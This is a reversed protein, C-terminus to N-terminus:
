ISASVDTAGITHAAVLHVIHPWLPRPLDHGMDGLMELTAGPILEATREGGSPTILTDDLGHIVLTPVDLTRLRDARPPASLIAAYQRPAGEPYFGRDYDRGLRGAEFADDYYKKSCWVRRAIVGQKIYGERDSLPAEMLAKGAEETSRGYNPEGTHSMVSILSAIQDPHEIAMTQVIMGGMSVGFIHATSINLARLLDVGDAAMDSLSYPLSPLEAKGERYEYVARLDVSQGDFHTSLGSDRNDFRIVYLGRAALMECFPVEFTTMQSTYGSVLLLAPHTPDGFTEYEITIGNALVSTV